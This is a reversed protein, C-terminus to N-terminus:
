YGIPVYSKYISKIAILLNNKKANNLKLDQRIKLTHLFKSRLQKRKAYSFYYGKFIDILVNKLEHLKIKIQYPIIKKIM